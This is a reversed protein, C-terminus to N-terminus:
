KSLLEDIYMLITAVVRKSGMLAVTRHHLKLLRFIAKSIAGKTVRLQLQLSLSVNFFSRGCLEWLFLLHLFGEMELVPSLPRQLKALNFDSKTQKSCIFIYTYAGNNQKPKQDNLRRCKYLVDWCNFFHMSEKSTSQRIILIAM